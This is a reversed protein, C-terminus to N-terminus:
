VLLPKIRTYIFMILFFFFFFTFSVFQNVFIGEGGWTFPLPPTPYIFNYFSLSHTVTYNRINFLFTDDMPATATLAHLPILLAIYLFKVLDFNWTVWYFLLLFYELYLFPICNLFLFFFTSKIYGLYISFIKCKTIMEFHTDLCVLFFFLLLAYLYIYKPVRVVELYNVIHVRITM